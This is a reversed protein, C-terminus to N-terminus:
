AAMSNEDQAGTEGMPAESPAGTAGQGILNGIAATAAEKKQAYAGDIDDLIKNLEERPMDNLMLKAMKKEIEAKFLKSTAKAQIKDFTDVEDGVSIPGFEWPYESVVEFSEATYAQFLMAIQHEAVKAIASTKKLVGELAIFDWQKAIGSKAEKVGIVGNQEALKYLQDVMDKMDSVLGTLIAPNPSIFGPAFSASLPVWLVNHESITL